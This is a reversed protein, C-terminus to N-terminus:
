RSHILDVYVVLLSFTMQQFTLDAYQLNHQKPQVETADKSNILSNCIQFSNRSKLPQIKFSRM